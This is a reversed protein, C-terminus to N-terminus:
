YGGGGGSKFCENSRCKYRSPCPPNNYTCGSKLVCRNNVCDYDNECSPNSYNCGSKLVCNNNVCDYNSKCPPNNYLCGEPTPAPEEKQQIEKIEVPQTVTTSQQACGNIIVIAFM